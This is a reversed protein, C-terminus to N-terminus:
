AYIMKKPIPPYRKVFPKPLLFESCVRLWNTDVKMERLKGGESPLAHGTYAYRARFIVVSYKGEKAIVYNKTFNNQSLKASGAIEKVESPDFRVLVSKSIGKEDIQLLARSESSGAYVTTIGGIKRLYQAATIAATRRGGAMLPVGYYEFFKKQLDDAYKDGKEYLDKSIYRLDKALDEAADAIPWDVRVHFHTLAYRLKSLKSRQILLAYDVPLLSELFSFFGETDLYKAQRSFNEVDPFDIHKLLNTKTTKNVDFYRIYKKHKEDIYNETFIVLFSNQAEFETSPIRARPKLERTEVFPYPSKHRIFNNYSDVLSYKIMVQDLEDRLVEYYSRVLKAERSLQERNDCFIM